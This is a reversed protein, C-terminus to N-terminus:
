KKTVLKFQFLMGLWKEKWAHIKQEASARAMALWIYGLSAPKCTKMGKRYGVEKQPQYELECGLLNALEINPMLGYGSVITDLKFTKETGAIPKGTEDVKAIVAENVHEDGKAEIISWGMKYPTHHKRMISFYKAGEILRNWQGLMTFAYKIGKPFLHSTECVAVVKVGAEILHAAASLLLPGTGTELRTNGSCRTSAKFFDFSCRM